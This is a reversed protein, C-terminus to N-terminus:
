KLVCAEAWNVHGQVDGRKGFDVELTLEKVGEIRLNVVLPGNKATLDDGTGLDFPKGDGLVRVRASGDRGTEDDLGVLAEFRRYKGELNYTASSRSHMGLGQDYVSGDLRLDRGTVAADVALPWKVGSDGLYPTYEFKAPKLESLYVAAGQFLNLAAVRALPVRVTAGFMTKGELTMGDSTASALTLRTGVSNADGTLVLRAYIGKPKLRDVGDTSLAVAAVKDLKVEVPKRDQEVEVHKADLANFLGDLGDGNRLLVRDRSRTGSALQRRLQDAYAVNDPSTRWFVSVAALPVSVEKGDDLDAHHFLLKEGDLRPANTPNRDDIPIRDGNALILQAEAPFPPLKVNARRISVVNNAALAKDGLRLSWDAKLDRLPGRESDGTATVVVFQPTPQDAAILPFVSVLLWSTILLVFYKM